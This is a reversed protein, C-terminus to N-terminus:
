ALGPLVADMTYSLLLLHGLLEVERLSSFSFFSILFHFHSFLFCNKFLNLLGPTATAARWVGKIM